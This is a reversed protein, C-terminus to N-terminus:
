MCAPVIKWAINLINICDKAPYSATRPLRCIAGHMRLPSLLHLDTTLKLDRTAKAGVFWSEAYLPFSSPHTTPRLLMRSANCFISIEGRGSISDQNMPRGAV